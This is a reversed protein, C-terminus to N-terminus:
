AEKDLRPIVPIDCHGKLAEYTGSGKWYESQSTRFISPVERTDLNILYFNKM